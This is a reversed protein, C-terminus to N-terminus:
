VTGVTDEGPISGVARENHPSLTVMVGGHRKFRDFEILDVLLFASLGTGHRGNTNALDFWM